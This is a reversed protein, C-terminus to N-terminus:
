FDDDDMPIAEDLKTKKTSDVVSSKPAAPIDMYRERNMNQKTAAVPAQTTNPTQRSAQRRMRAAENAGRLISLMEHLAESLVSAQHTLNQSLSQTEGAEAANEQTVKDMLAISQHINQIDQAQSQSAQAIEGVIAGMQDSAAVMSAFSEEANRVLLAGQNIRDLSGAIMMTTNKAAEASRNALNRVEDAVVAFGVGAEGARAAEVAANLALINTQFAIEEVTKIIQRSAQGSQHIEEMAKSIESMAENATQVHDKAENMLEKAQTSHSANRKAMSLMEELSSIAELVAATNESVGKALLRSSRSLHDATQTVESAGHSFHGFVRGLPRVTSRLLMIALAVTLILALPLGIMMSRSIQRGATESKELLNESLLRVEKNFEGLEALIKEGGRGLTTQVLAKQANVKLLQNKLDDLRGLLTKLKDQDSSGLSSFESGTTPWAPLAQSERKSDAEWLLTLRRQILGAATLAARRQAERPANEAIPTLLAVSEADIEALETRVAEQSEITAALDAMGKKLAELDRLITEVRSRLGDLRRTKKLSEILDRGSAGVADYSENWQQLYLIQSSIAYSSINDLAKGVSATLEQSAVLTPVLERGLDGSLSRMTGVRLTIFGLLLAVTLFILSFGVAFKASLTLQKM